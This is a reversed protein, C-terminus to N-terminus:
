GNFQEGTWEHGCRGCVPHPEGFGSSSVRREPGAGCRPCRKDAAKRVAAPRGQPDLLAAAPDQVATEDDMPPAM